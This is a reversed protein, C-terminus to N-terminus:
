ANQIKTADVRAAEANQFVDIPRRRHCLDCSQLLCLRSDINSRACSSMFLAKCSDLPTVCHARKGTGPRTAPVPMDSRLFSCSAEAVKDARLRLLELGSGSPESPGSGPAEAGRRWLGLRVRGTAGHRRPASASLRASRDARPALRTGRSLAEALKAARHCCSNLPLASPSVGPVARRGLQQACSALSPHRSM